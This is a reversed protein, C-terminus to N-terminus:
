PLPVLRGPAKRVKSRLWQEGMIVVALAAVALVPEIRKM